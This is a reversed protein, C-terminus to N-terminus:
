DLGFHQTFEIRKLATFMDAPGVSCNFGVVAVTAHGALRSIAQPLAYDQEAQGAPEIAIQAAVPLDCIDAAINVAILLEKPNYFTELLM